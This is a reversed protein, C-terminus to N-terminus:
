IDHFTVYTSKFLLLVHLMGMESQKQFIQIIDFLIKALVVIM